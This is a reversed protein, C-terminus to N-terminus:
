KGYHQYGKSAYYIYKQYEYEKKDYDKGIQLKKAIKLLIQLNQFGRGHQKCTLAYWIGVHLKIPWNSWDSRVHPMWMYVATNPSFWLKVNFFCPNQSNLRIPAFTLTISFFINWLNQILSEVHLDWWSNESVLVIFMTKLSTWIKQKLFILITKEVCYSLYGSTRSLRYQEHIQIVKLFEHVINNNFLMQCIM